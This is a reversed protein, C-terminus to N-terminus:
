GEIEETAKRICFKNLGCEFGEEFLLKIDEEPLEAIESLLVKIGLNRIEESKIIIDDFRTKIIAM